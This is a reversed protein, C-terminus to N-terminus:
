GFVKDIVRAVERRTLSKEPQRNAEELWDGLWHNGEAKGALAQALVGYTLPQDNDTGLEDATEPSPVKRLIKKMEGVSIVSDPDFWTQNAWKYPVGRGQMWGRVGVRQIAQFAADEPTVDLYPMLWCGADLLVQQLDAVPLNRPDTNTKVCLAAAAGAAQGILMVCPQLRTAGNVIHSVSISKEAVILGEVKEPIMARYPVSFSPIAPFEEPKVKPNKDHHHDLPYDGVAVAQQYWPRTSDAYPNLIDEVTLQLLGKVRRAERHYPQEPLQDSTPFEDDALGLQTFGAETQFFYLLALTRNKAAIYAKQREEETLPLANIYYDNGNNPWNIMYKKGPLRGYNLVTQCDPVQTQPDDCVEKCICHFEAPDYGPPRPITRDQGPGYDKLIAAYTIDQIHPDHPNNETDQGTLYDAGALALVDGLETAEITIRAKVTRIDGNANTFRAGTVRNREKLVEVVRYGHIRSLNQLEQDALQNWLRNGIHPEFLTNSVWGTSVSDPGGYYDYLMQRWEGWLGSPLRHNGDTAPVGSSTLMGGLWHTPEIIITQAGGRAAQIGATVGSAGGGIVLVDVSVFDPETTCGPFFILWLIIVPLALYKM